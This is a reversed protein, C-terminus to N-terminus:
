EGMIARLQAKTYTVGNITVTEDGDDAPQEPEPDEAPIEEAPSEPVTEEEVSEPETVEIVEEAPEADDAPAESAGAPEQSQEDAESAIRANYRDANLTAIRRLVTPVEATGDEEAPANPDPVCEESIDFDSPISDLPADEALAYPGGAWSPNTLPAGTEWDIGEISSTSFITEGPNRLLARTM